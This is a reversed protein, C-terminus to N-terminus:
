RACRAGVSRGEILRMVVWLLGRRSMGRCFIDRTLKSKLQSQTHQGARLAAHFWGCVNKVKSNKSKVEKAEGFAIIM